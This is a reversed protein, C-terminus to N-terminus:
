PTVKFKQVEQKRELIIPNYAYPPTHPVLTSRLAKSQSPMYELVLSCSYKHELMQPVVYVRDCGFVNEAEQSPDQTPNKKKKITLRALGQRAVM